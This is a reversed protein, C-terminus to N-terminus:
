EDRLSLVPNARAAQLTRVSMTVLSIMLTLLASLAFLEWGLPISYAFNALWEKMFYLSTPIALVMAIVYLKLFDVSILSVISAVSAGLVKRIGIEKTRQATTYITLGFLGLCAIFISLGAFVTFMTGFREDAEYQENFSDDVFYTLFPRQPALEVWLAELDALTKGMEKSTLKMALRSNNRNTSHRLTMPEVDQHLSKYNFDKIVGVVKGQRGWQDFPKGVIDEPNDYGWLKAAAENVLLSTTTDTPFDRSFNRGAVVEMGFNPVFDDDVEFIAPGKNIMEGTPAEITTGANPFFDGPVARSASISAVDPHELFRRKVYELNQQVKLDWDFNLVLMQDSDYGKDHNRMFDLQSGIITTAVLLIISLSFQITVLAKRLWVGHGSTKFAGKLVTVSKFRSLVWAPYLGALVGVTILGVIFLVLIEPALLWTFAFQKDALRELFPVTFVCLGIAIAGGLFSMLISEVLFQFVLSSRQSGIAKRIGVEKAREVSRATSLNTFNICAILLMFVAISIFVYINDLSGTAGPQRRAVSKLYADSLPEFAISYGQWDDLYKGVFTTAQAELNATTTGPHLTFYTYFDVYGWWEFVENRWSHFTIMPMLADFQLHSNSPIDEMVGTVQMQEDNDLKILQGMPNADGFYKRALSQTLVITNPETLATKPNGSILPWSFVDFATSDAFWISREQFRKGDVELLYSGTNKLRCVQDIEPFDNDLAPGVPANGWVQFEDPSAVAKQQVDDNSRFAQVVRYIRDYNTHYKDYSLEHQVYIGILLCSAIGVALGIINIFAFSKHRKINRLSITLYNKFMALQILKQSKFIPKVVGPRILRLVEYLLQLQARQNSYRRRLVAFREFLDGEIDEVFDVRCFWRFFALIKAHPENM